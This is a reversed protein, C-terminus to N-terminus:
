KAGGLLERKLDDLADGICCLNVEDAADTEEAIRAARKQLEECLARIWFEAQRTNCEDAYNWTRKAWKEGAETM